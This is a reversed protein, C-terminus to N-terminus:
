IDHVREQRYICKCLDGTTPMKVLCSKMGSCMRSSCGTRRLLLHFLSRHCLPAMALYKRDSMTHTALLPQLLYM